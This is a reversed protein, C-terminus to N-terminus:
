SIRLQLGGAKSKKGAKYLTADALPLQGTGPVRHALKHTHLWTTWVMLTLNIQGIVEQIYLSFTNVPIVRKSVWSRGVGKWM